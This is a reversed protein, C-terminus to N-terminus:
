SVPVNEVQVINGLGPELDGRNVYTAGITLGVTALLIALSAFLARLGIREVLERQRTEARLEALTRTVFGYPPTLEGAFSSASLAVLNQWRGNEFENM